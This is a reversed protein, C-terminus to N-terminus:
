ICGGKRLAEALAKDREEIMEAARVLVARAQVVTERMANYERVVADADTKSLCVMGAPCGPLADQPIAPGALLSLFAVLIGRVIM